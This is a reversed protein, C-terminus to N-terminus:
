KNGTAWSLLNSIASFIGAKVHEPAASAHTEVALKAGNIVADAADFGALELKAKVEQLSAAQQVGTAAQETARSALNTILHPNEAIAKSAGELSLKTAASAANTMTEKTWNTAKAGLDSFLTGMQWNRKKLEIIGVAGVTAGTATAAVVFVDRLVRDRAYQSAGDNLRKELEFRPLGSAGELVHQWKELYEEKRGEPTHVHIWEKIRTSVRALPSSEQPNSVPPLEGTM